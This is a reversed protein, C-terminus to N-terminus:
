IEPFLYALNNHPCLKYNSCYPCGSKGNIRTRNYIISPWRHCACPNKICKWNVIANSHPAYEEPKNQNREYDWEKSIEPYVAALNNHPCVKHNSCYPCDNKGNSRSYIKAPWIHCGCPNRKCKWWVKAHSYPLYEQPTKDNKEYYWEDCIKPYSVLLNNHSCIYSGHGVHKRLGLKECNCINENVIIIIPMIIDISIIM